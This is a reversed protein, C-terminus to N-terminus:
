PLAPRAAYPGPGLHGPPEQVFRKGYGRRVRHLQGTVVRQGPAPVSSTQDNM